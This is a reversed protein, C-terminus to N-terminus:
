KLDCTYKLSFKGRRKRCFKKPECSFLPGKKCAIESEFGVTYGDEVACYGAAVCPFETSKLTLDQINECMKICGSAGLCIWSCPVTSLTEAGRLLDEMVEDCMDCTAEPNENGSHFHGKQILKALKAVITLDDLISASAWVIILPKWLHLILM